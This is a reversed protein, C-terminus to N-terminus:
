FSRMALVNGEVVFYCTFTASGYIDENTIHLSKTGTEHAANWYNDGDSDSSQRKWLFNEDQYGDTVDTNGYFLTPSM